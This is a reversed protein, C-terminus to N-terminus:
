STLRPWKVRAKFDELRILQKDPALISEVHQNSHGAHGVYRDYKMQHDASNAYGFHILAFDDTTDWGEGMVYTPVAPVGFHDQPYDGGPQYAFFLPAHITGWLRDVRVLPTGDEDFGFVEPINLCVAQRAGIMSDLRITKKAALFEDCDIVLVWDGLQPHMYHEFAMWAAGRFIGENEAFSCIFPSREQVVCGFGWAIDRTGDTSCDDFFFHGDVVGYLNDIMPRLYRHEENRGVTLAFIKM